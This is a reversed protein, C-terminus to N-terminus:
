KVYEHKTKMITYLRLLEENHPKGMSIKRLEQFENIFINDLEEKTKASDIKCSIKKSKEWFVISKRGMYTLLSGMISFLFGLAITLKFVLFLNIVFQETISFLSILSFSFISTLIFLVIFVQWYPAEEFFLDITKKM